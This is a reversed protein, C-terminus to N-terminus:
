FLNKLLPVHKYKEADLWIKVLSDDHRSLAKSYFASKEAGLKRFVRTAIEYHFISKFRRSFFRGAIIRATFFLVCTVLFVPVWKWADFPLNDTTLSQYLHWIPIGAGLYYLIHSTPLTQKASDAEFKILWAAEEPTLCDLTSKSIVAVNKRVYVRSHLFLSTGVRINKFPRGPVGRILEFLPNTPSLQTAGFHIPIQCFIFFGLIISLEIPVLRVIALSTLLWNLWEHRYLLEQCTLALISPKAREIESM